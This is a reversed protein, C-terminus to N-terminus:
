DQNVRLRAFADDLYNGTSEVLPGVFDMQLFAFSYDQLQGADIDDHSEVCRVEAHAASLVPLKM